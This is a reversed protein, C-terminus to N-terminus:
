ATEEKKPFSLIKLIQDTLIEQAREHTPKDDFKLFTTGKYIDLKRSLYWRMSTSAKYLAHSLRHLGREDIRKALEEKSGDWQKLFLRQFVLPERHLMLRNLYDAEKKGLCAFLAKLTAASIIQRMEFSLDHLGLFRVLHDLTESSLSLLHNLQHKAIFAFPTLEQNQTIQQRLLSRLGKNAVQSLHPLHNHLGLAHSLAKAQSESLTSLFLRVEGEALSRLLPTLWSFHVWDLIDFDLKEKEFPVCPPLEQLALREQMPMLHILGEQMHPPCRELFGKLVM